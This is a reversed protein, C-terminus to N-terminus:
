PGPLVRYYRVASVPLGRINGTAWLGPDCIGPVVDLNSCVAITAPNHSIVPHIEVVSMADECICGAVSCLCQAPRLASQQEVELQITRGLVAPGDRGVNMVHSNQAPLPVTATM